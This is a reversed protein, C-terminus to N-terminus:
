EMAMSTCVRFLRNLKEDFIRVGSSVFLIIEAVHVDLLGITLDLYAIGM